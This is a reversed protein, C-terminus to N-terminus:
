GKLRFEFGVTNTPNNCMAQAVSAPIPLSTYTVIPARGSPGVGIAQLSSDQANGTNALLMAACGAPPLLDFYVYFGDGSNNIRAEAIAVGGNWPDYAAKNDATVMDNPFVHAQIYTYHMADTPSLAMDANGSTDVTTSTQYFGRVNQVISMLEGNAKTARHSNYAGSAAVWIAGLVMGIIGLVIAIETLTFGKRPNLPSSRRRAFIM